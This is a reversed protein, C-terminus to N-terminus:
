SRAKDILQWIHSPDFPLEDVEVRLPALADVIANALVATPPLIGIEGAGKMGGPVDPAPTERLELEIEPVDAATPLLYDLFSMTRLQGDNDYVLEELKASGVGQAVGGYIQGEVITPNIMTGSDNVVVYRVIEFKGSDPNM